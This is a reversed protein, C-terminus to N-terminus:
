PAEMMELIDASHQNLTVIIIGHESKLQAYETRLKAAKSLTVQDAQINPNAKLGRAVDDATLPLPNNTIPVVGTGRPNRVLITHPNFQMHGFLLVVGIVIQRVIRLNM